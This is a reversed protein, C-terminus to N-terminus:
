NGRHIKAISQVIALSHSSENNKRTYNLKYFPEFINELENKPINKGSNFVSIIINKNDKNIILKIEGNGYKIANSIYNSIAHYILDPNGKIYINEPKQIEFKINNSKFISSFRSKIDNCIIDFDFTEFNLLKEDYIYLRSLTLMEKIISDLRDCENVIINVYRNKEDPTDAVSYILGEIHGKITAIPTKLQHSLNRSLTKQFLIDKELREMSIKLNESLTNISEALKGLEDKSKLSIHQNFNLLSMDTAIKSM